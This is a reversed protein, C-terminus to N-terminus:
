PPPLGDYVHAIRVIVQLTNTETKMVKPTLGFAFDRNPGQTGSLNYEVAGIGGAYNAQTLGWTCQVDRYYSDPVYSGVTSMGGGFASTGTPPDFITAGIGGSFAVGLSSPRPGTGHLLPSSWTWHFDWWSPRAVYDHTGSGTIDITGVVDTLPIFQTLRYAVDLQEDALVTFSTPDGLADRILERSFLTTAGWGVGVETMNGVVAGYAFRYTNVVELTYPSVTTNKTVVSTQTASTSASLADLGTQLVNPASTGTGIVCWSIKSSSANTSMFNRGSDLILNSFWPTSARITGNPRRAHLQYEGRFGCSVKIEAKPELIKFKPVWINM